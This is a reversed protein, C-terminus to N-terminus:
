ECDDLRITAYPDLTAAPDEIREKLCQLQQRTVLFRIDPEVTAGTPSSLAEVVGRETECDGLDVAIAAGDRAAYGDFRELLCAALGPDLTVSAACLGCAAASGASAALMAALAAGLM